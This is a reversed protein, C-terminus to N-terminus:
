SCLAWVLWYSLCVGLWTWGLARGLLDARDHSARWGGAVALLTWGGLLAVASHNGARYWLSFINHEQDFWWWLGQRAAYVLFTVFTLWVAVYGPSAWGRRRANRWRLGIALSVSMACLIPVADLFIREALQSLVVRPREDWTFREPQHIRLFQQDTERVAFFACPVLLASVIWFRLGLGPTKAPASSM